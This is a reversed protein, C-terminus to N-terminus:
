KEADGGSSNVALIRSTGRVRTLARIEEPDVRIAGPGLKYVPWAGRKIMRRIHSQSCGLNEAATRVNTLM